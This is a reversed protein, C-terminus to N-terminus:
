FFVDISSLTVTEATGDTHTRDIVARVAFERSLTYRAELGYQYNSFSDGIGYRLAEGTIALGLKDNLQSIAIIKAGTGLTYGNSLKSGALSSVRALTSILTREFQWSFGVGGDLAGILPRNRNILMRRLEASLSWSLPKIFTSRASLSEANLLTLKRLQLSEGKRHELSFNGLEIASGPLFGGEPDLLDHYAGRYELRYLPDGSSSGAAIRARSTRHGQDPRVRPPTVEISKDSPLKSRQTLVEHARKRLFVSEKTTSLMKYLIHGHALELSDIQESETFTSNQIESAKGKGTSIKRAFKIQEPSSAQELANLISARSPRYEVSGLIDSIEILARVTDVPIVWNSFKQKVNLEPRIAELLSLLQYSCNEDFYYYDFAVGRLEWLHRVLQLVEESSFNLKYEWIDRHELDSYQTVKQYYPAVTFEGHYGGFIGKAAYVLGSDAGSTRAEYNAAYSILPLSEKPDLRLFTHGFASAPNNIFSSPFVLTLQEANIGASWSKFESCDLQETKSEIDKFYKSLFVARAPFLCLPHQNHDEPIERNIADLTATLEALPNIQGDKAFFFDPDDVLSKKSGFFREEYHLLALWGNSTAIEKTISTPAPTALAAYPALLLLV